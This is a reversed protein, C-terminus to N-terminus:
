KNYHFTGFEAFSQYRFRYLRNALAWAEEDWNWGPAQQAELNEDEIVIRLYRSAVREPFDFFQENRNSYPQQTVTILDTWAVSADTIDIEPEATYQIKMKSVYHRWGNAFYFGDLDLVKQMDVVIYYPLEYKRLQGGLSSNYAELYSGWYTSLNGDFLDDAVHHNAEKKDQIDENDKKYTADTAYAEWEEGETQRPYRFRYKAGDFDNVEAFVDDRNTPNINWMEKTPLPYQEAYERDSETLTFGWQEYLPALNEGYADCLARFIYTDDTSKVLTKRMDAFVGNLSSYEPLGKLMDYKALQGLVALRLNNEPIKTGDELKCDNSFNKVSDAAAFMYLPRIYKAIELAGNGTSTELTVDQFDPSDGDRYNRESNRYAALNEFARKWKSDTSNLSYRKTFGGLVSLIRNEKMNTWSTLEDYLQSTKLLMEGQLNDDHMAYNNALQVDFILRDPFNPLRDQLREANVDLGLTNYFYEMVNDWRDLVTNLNEAFSPDSSVAEQMRLLDISIVVRDSRLELWPVTTSMIREKWEQPDTEGKIFDAARYVNRFTIELEKPGIANADRVIWIYGGLPFRVYNTGPQLTKRTYVIPERFYTSSLKDSQQGIQVTLGRFGNDPVEIIVLEGAGAYVGTSYIPQPVKDKIGGTVYEYAFGYERRSVYQKSFDFKVPVDVRAEKVTDVLGPFIRAKAYMSVDVSMTTDIDVSTSDYSNTDWGNPVDLDYHEQCGCLASILLAGVMTIPTYKKLM